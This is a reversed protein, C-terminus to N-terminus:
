EDHLKFILRQLDEWFESALLLELPIVDEELITRLENENQNEGAKELVNKFDMLTRREVLAGQIEVFDGSSSKLCSNVSVLGMKVKRQIEMLLESNQVERM